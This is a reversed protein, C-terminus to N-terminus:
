PQCKSYWDMSLPLLCVPVDCKIKPFSNSPSAFPFSSGSRQGFFISETFHIMFTSRSQSSQQCSQAGPRTLATGGSARDLIDARSKKPFYPVEAPYNQGIAARM